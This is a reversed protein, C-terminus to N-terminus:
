CSSRSGGRSGGRSRGRSGGRSRGRSGGRSGGQEREQERGQEHLASNWCSLQWKVTKHNFGFCAASTVEVVEVVRKLVTLM